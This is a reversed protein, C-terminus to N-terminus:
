SISRIEMIEGNYMWKEDTRIKGGLLGKDDTYNRLKNLMNQLKIVSEKPWFRDDAYM